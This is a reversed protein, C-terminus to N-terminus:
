RTREFFARGEEPRFCTGGDVDDPTLIVITGSLDDWYATRGRLLSREDTPATLIRLVLGAFESEDTLDVFDRRHDLWAHGSAIRQALPWAQEYDLPM